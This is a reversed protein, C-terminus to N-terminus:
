NDGAGHAPPTPIDDLVHSLAEDGKARTSNEQM